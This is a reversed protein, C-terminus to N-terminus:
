FAGNIPGAAGGENSIEVGLSSAMPELPTILLFIVNLRRWYGTRGSAIRKYIALLPGFAYTPMCITNNYSLKTLKEPVCERLFVL